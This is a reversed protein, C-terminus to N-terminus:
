RSATKLNYVFLNFNHENIFLNFCSIAYLKIDDTKKLACTHLPTVAQTRLM